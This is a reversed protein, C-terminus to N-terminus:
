FKPNRKPGPNQGTASGETVRFIRSEVADTTDNAYGPMSLGFDAIPDSEPTSMWDPIPHDPTSCNDPGGLGFFGFRFLEAM